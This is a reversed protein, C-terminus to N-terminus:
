ATSVLMYREDTIERGWLRPDDLQEAFHVERGVTTLLDRAKDATLGAGTQWRGEILILRGMPALLAVWRELAEKPQPLAWLVHRSIVADYQGGHLSPAAADGLHFVVGPRNAAKRAAQELMRSSFDVGDVHYGMEALLLSLTGTGCGLDAVRAPAPPLAKALLARWAARTAKNTLGHDAGEDFASAEEDWLAIRQERDVM